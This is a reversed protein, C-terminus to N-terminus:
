PVKHPSFSRTSTHVHSVDSLLPWRALSPCSPSSASSRYFGLITPPSPSPLPPSVQHVQPRHPPLFIPCIHVDRPPSSIFRLRSPHSPHLSLHFPLFTSSSPLPLHSSTITPLSLPPPLRPSVKGTHSPSSRALSQSIPDAMNITDLYGHGPLPDLVTQCGKWAKAEEPRATYGGSRRALCSDLYLIERHSEAAGIDIRHNERRQRELGGELESRRRCLRWREAMVEM